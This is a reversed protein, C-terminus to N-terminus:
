FPETLVGPNQTPISLKCLTSKGLTYMPLLCDQVSRPLVEWPLQVGELAGMPALEARGQGSAARPASLPIVSSLSSSFGAGATVWIGRWGSGESFDYDKSPKQDKKKKKLYMGSHQWPSLPSAIIEANYVEARSCSPSPPPFISSSCQYHM